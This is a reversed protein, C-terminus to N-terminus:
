ATGAQHRLDALVEIQLRQAPGAEVEAPQRDQWALRGPEADGPVGVPRPGEPGFQPYRGIGPEAGERFWVEPGPVHVQAGHRRALLERPQLEKAIVSEPGRDRHVGELM